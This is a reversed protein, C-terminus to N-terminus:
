RRGRPVVVGKKVEYKARTQVPACAVLAKAETEKSAPVEWGKADANWRGGMAKLQDKVPFTNGTVLVMRAVSAGPAAPLAEVVPVAHRAAIARAKEDDGLWWAKSEADWHAGAGRLADRIPFTAGRVYTRRGVRETTISLRTSETTTTTPM